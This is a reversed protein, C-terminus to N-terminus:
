PGSGKVNSHEISCCCLACALRYVSLGRLQLAQGEHRGAPVGAGDPQGPGAGFGPGNGFRGAEDVEEGGHLLVVDREERYRILDAALDEAAAEGAADVLRSGLGSGGKRELVADRQPVLAVAVLILAPVHEHGLDGDELVRRYPVTVM